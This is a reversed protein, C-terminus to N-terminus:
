IAQPTGCVLRHIWTACSVRGLNLATTHTAHRVVPRVAAGGPPVPPKGAPLEGAAAGAAYGTTVGKTTVQKCHFRCCPQLGLHGFNSIVVTARRNM